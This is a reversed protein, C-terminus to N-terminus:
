KVHMTVTSHLGQGAPISYRAWYWSNRSWTHSSKNPRGVNKSSRKSSDNQLRRLKADLEKTFENHRRDTKKASVVANSTVNTNNTTTTTINGINNNSDSKNRIIQAELDHILKYDPHLHIIHQGEIVERNHRLPRVIANPKGIGRFHDVPVVAFAPSEELLEEQQRAATSFTPM